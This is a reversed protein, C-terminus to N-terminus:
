LILSVLSTVTKTYELGTGGSSVWLEPPKVISLGEIEGLSGKIAKFLSQLHQSLLLLTLPAM